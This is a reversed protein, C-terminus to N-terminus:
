TIVIQDEWYLARSDTIVANNIEKYIGSSAPGGSHTSSSGSPACISLSADLLPPDEVSSAPPQDRTSRVENM